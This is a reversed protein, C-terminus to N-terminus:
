VVENIFCDRITVVATQIDPIIEVIQYNQDKLIVSWMDQQQRAASIIIFFAKYEFAFMHHMRHSVFIYAPGFVQRLKRRSDVDNATFNIGIDEIPIARRTMFLEKTRDLDISEM